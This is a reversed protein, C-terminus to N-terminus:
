SNRRWRMHHRPPITNVLVFGHREYFRRAPNVELVTLRLEVGQAQLREILGSGIGRNQWSPLVYLKDIRWHDSLREVGLLGIDAGRHQIIEDIPIDLSVRGEDWEGWTREAYDRM